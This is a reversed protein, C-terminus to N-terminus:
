LLVDRGCLNEPVHCADRLLPFVAEGDDDRNANSRGRAKEHILAGLALAIRDGKHGEDDEREGLEEEGEEDGYEGVWMM